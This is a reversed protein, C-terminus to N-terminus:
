KNVLTACRTDLFNDEDNCDVASSIAQTNQAQSTTLAAQQAQTTLSLDAFLVTFVAGAVVFFLGGYRATAVAIKEADVPFRYPSLLALAVKERNPQVKKLFFHSQKKPSGEKKAESKQAHLTE